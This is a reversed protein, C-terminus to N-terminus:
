EEDEDDYEKKERFNKGFKGKKKEFKKLRKKNHKEKQVFYEEDSVEGLFTGSQLEDVKKDNV